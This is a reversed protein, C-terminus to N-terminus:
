ASFAPAGLIPMDVLSATTMSVGDAVLRHRIETAVWTKSGAWAVADGASIGTTFPLSLSGTRWRRRLRYMQLMIEAKAAALNRAPKEVELGRLSGSPNATVSGVSGQIPVAYECTM